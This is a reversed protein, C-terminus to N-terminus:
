LHFIRHSENLHSKLIGQIAYYYNIGTCFNRSIFFLSNLVRYVKIDDAFLKIPSELENSIDNIYILFMIPGLVTGQSVGSTVKTWKSYTGRVIVRQNRNILFSNLWSLLPGQIGYAKIKTILRVHSVSDFTKPLDLFIGDTTKGKNRERAWDDFVHLLQSLCFKRKMYGFQDSTFVNRSIWFTVLNRCVIKECVKSVISTLSVPRYNERDKPGKKHLPVIDAQKWQDPVVGQAFSMNFLECLSHSLTRSCKKLIMPHIEDPGPSKNQKLESLLASVKEPSCTVSALEGNNIVSEFSPLSQLDEDTFMSSFYDNMEQAIGLDSTIVKNGDAKLSILDNTGKRKSAVYNWFLKKNDKNNLDNALKDLYRWRAENCKKKVLNNLNKYGSNLDNRNLRKAKRYM